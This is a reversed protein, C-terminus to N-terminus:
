HGYISFTFDDTFSDTGLEKLLAPSFPPMPASETISNRSISLLLEMTGSGGDLVKTTITGDSYITYQIRVSGVPLVQLQNNVKPYWRSGM